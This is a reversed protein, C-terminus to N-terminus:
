EVNLSCSFTSQNTSPRTYEGDAFECPRYGEKSLELTEILSTKVFMRLETQGVETQGLTVVAESPVSLARLLERQPPLFLAAISAGWRAILDVKSFVSQDLVEYEPAIEVQERTVSTVIGASEVSVQESPVAVTRNGIGLFGGYKVVAALESGEGVVVIDELSGVTQGSADLVPAGVTAEALSSVSCGYMREFVQLATDGSAIPVVDPLEEDIAAIQEPNCTQAHADSVSCNAVIIALYIQVHAAVKFIQVV